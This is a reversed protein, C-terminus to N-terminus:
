PAYFAHLRGDKLFPPVHPVAAIADLVALDDVVTLADLPITNLPEVHGTFAVDAVEIDRTAGVDDENMDFRLRFGDDKEARAFAPAGHPAAARLDSLVQQLLARSAGLSLADPLALARQHGGVNLAELSAAPALDQMLGADGYHAQGEIMVLRVDRETAKILGLYPDNADRRNLVLVDALMGPELRGLQADWRCLRAADATVAMALRKAGLRQAVPQQQDWLWAVKLELLLNRSGSPTWDCALAFPAHLLGADLTRGYLLLNSLPSWVVHSGAAALAQHDGADLGLCHICVLNPRLLDEDRVLRAQALAPPDRGEALHLFMPRPQALKQRFRTLKDPVLDMIQTNIASLAAETSMELNRTLGQYDGHSGSLGQLATAGGLLSKVEVYRALAKHVASPKAEILDAPGRIRRHYDAHRLWQSRGDFRQPVPWVPFVNYAPHNHLDMLGPLVDCDPLELRQAGGFGAPAAQDAPQVAVIRRGDLYLCGDSIADGTMPVIRSRIVIRPM